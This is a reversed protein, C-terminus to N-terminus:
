VRIQMRTSDIDGVRLAAVEPRCQPLKHIAVASVAPRRPSTASQKALWLPSNAHQPKGLALARGSWKCPFKTSRGQLSWCEAQISSWIM